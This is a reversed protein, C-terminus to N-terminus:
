SKPPYTRATPRPGAEEGKLKAKLWELGELNDLLREEVDDM